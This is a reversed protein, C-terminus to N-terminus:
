RRRSSNGGSRARRGARRLTRARGEARVAAFPERRRWLGPEDRARHDHERGRSGLDLQLPRARAALAAIRAVGEGIEDPSVFSFALRLSPAGTPAAPSSTPARSSRSAAQADRARAAGVADVGSPCTSGSSTGATRGAGADRRRRARARARRADRRAPRRLLGRVRVLNHEFRAARAPVRVVTAQGLLVPSIYTDNAADRAGLRPELRAARVLRRAPRARDDELVLSAYIVHEGGELERLRRCRRRGRLPRTRVPRGRAGTLRASARSSSSGGAGSSRCRAGARTRSPRSRTSSRRRSARTSRRARARRPRARRRGAPGDRRGRGARALLKLPRDYTPAEVLM